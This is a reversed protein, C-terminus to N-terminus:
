KLKQVVLFIILIFFDGKARLMDLTEVTKPLLQAGQWLVGIFNGRLFIVGLDM